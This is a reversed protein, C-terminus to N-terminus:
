EVNPLSPLFFYGVKAIRLVWIYCCLWGQGESIRPIMCYIEDLSSIVPALMTSFCIFGPSHYKFCLSIFPHKIAWSLQNGHFRM